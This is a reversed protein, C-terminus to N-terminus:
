FQVIREDDILARMAIGPRTSGIDNQWPRGIGFLANRKDICFAARLHRRAGTKSRAVGFLIPRDQPCQGTM